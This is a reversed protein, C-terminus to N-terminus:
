YFIEAFKTSVKAEAGQECSGAVEELESGSSDLGRVRGGV